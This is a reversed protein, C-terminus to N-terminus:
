KIKIGGSMAANIVTKDISGFISIVSFEKPTTTYFLLAGETNKTIFMELLEEGDQIRVIRTFLDSSTHKELEGKLSTWLPVGSEMASTKINIIRLEKIKSLLEKTSANVDSTGAIQLLSPSIVISEVSKKKEYKDLIENIQKTQGLAAAPLIIAVFMLILLRKM